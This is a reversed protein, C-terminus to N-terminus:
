RPSGTARAPLPLGLVLLLLAAVLAPEPVVLPPPLAVVHVLELVLPPALLPAVPALELAQQLEQALAVVVRELERERLLAVLPPAM